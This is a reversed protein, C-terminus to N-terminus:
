VNAFHIEQLYILPRVGVGEAPGGTEAVRWRCGMVRTLPFGLLEEDRAGGSKVGRYKEIVAAMNVFESVTTSMDACLESAAKEGGVCAKVPLFSCCRNATFPLVPTRNDCRLLKFPDCTPFLFQNSGGPTMYPFLSPSPSAIKRNSLYDCM